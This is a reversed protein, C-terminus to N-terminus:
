NKGERIVRGSLGTAWGLGWETERGRLEGAGQSKHAQREGLRGDARPGVGATEPQVGTVRLDRSVRNELGRLVRDGGEEGTGEERGVGDRWTGQRRGTM